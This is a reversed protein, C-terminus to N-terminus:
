LPSMLRESMDKCYWFQRREASGHGSKNLAERAACYCSARIDSGRHGTPGSRYLLRDGRKIRLTLPGMDADSHLFSARVAVNPM